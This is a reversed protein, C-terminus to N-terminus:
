VYRIGPNAKAYVYLIRSLVDYHKESQDNKQKRETQIYTQFPIKFRHNNM